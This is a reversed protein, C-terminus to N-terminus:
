SLCLTPDYFLVGNGVASWATRNALGDGTADMFITSNSLETLQIGTGDLALIIPLSGKHRPTDPESTQKHRHHDRSQPRIQQRPKAAAHSQNPIPHTYPFYNMM